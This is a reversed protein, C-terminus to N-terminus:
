KLGKEIPIVVADRWRRFRRRADESDNLRQRREEREADALERLREAGDGTNPKNRRVMQEVQDAL